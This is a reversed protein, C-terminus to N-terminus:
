YRFKLIRNIEKSHKLIVAFNLNSSIPNKTLYKVNIEKYILLLEM